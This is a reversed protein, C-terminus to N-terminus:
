SLAGITKVLGNRCDMTRGLLNGGQCLELFRQNGTHGNLRVRLVHTTSNWTFVYDGKSSDYPTPTSDFELEWVDTYVTGSFVDEVDWGRYSVKAQRTLSGDITWRSDPQFVLYLCAGAFQTFSQNSVTFAADAVTWVERGNYSDSTKRCQYYLDEVLVTLSNGDRMWVNTSGESLTGDANYTAKKSTFTGDGGAIGSVAKCRIYEVESGGGVTGTVLWSGFKDRAVLVWTDGDVATDSLNYVRHSLQTVRQLVPDALTGGVQYIECDAYGPEDDENAGTGAGVTLAPIGGAPTKAAYVEPAQHDTEYHIPRDPVTSLRRRLDEVLEKFAAVEAASLAYLEEAM